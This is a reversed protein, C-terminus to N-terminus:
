HQFIQESAQGRFQLIQSTPFTMLMFVNFPVVKRILIAQNRPIYINTYMPDIDAVIQGHSSLLNNRTSFTWGDLIVTWDSPPLDSEPSRMSSNVNADVWRVSDADFFSEDAQMLHLTGASTGAAGEIVAGTSSTNNLPASNMQPLIAPSDLSLGFTFNEANHHQRFWQGIISDEFNAQYASANASPAVGQQRNMGFGAIGSIDSGLQMRAAQQLSNQEQLSQVVIVLM